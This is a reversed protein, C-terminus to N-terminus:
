VKQKTFALPQTLYHEFLYFESEPLGRIEVSRDLRLYACASAFYILFNNKEFFFIAPAIHCWTPLLINRHKWRNQGGKGSSDCSPSKSTLNNLKIKAVYPFAIDFEQNAKKSYWDKLFQFKISKMVGRRVFIVGFNQVNRKFSYCELYVCFTNQLM